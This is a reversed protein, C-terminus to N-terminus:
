PGPSFFTSRRSSSTAMRTRLRNVRTGAMRGITAARLNCLIPEWAPHYNYTPGDPRLQLTFYVPMPCKDCIIDKTFTSDATILVLPPRVRVPEDVEPGADACGEPGADGAHAEGDKESGPSDVRPVEDDGCCDGDRVSLVALDDSM